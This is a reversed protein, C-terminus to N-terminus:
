FLEVSVYGLSYWGDSTKGKNAIPITHEISSHFVVAMEVTYKDQPLDAPIEYNFSSLIEGPLWGKISVDSIELNSIENNKNKLRFALRYDRYPPAIGLNEWNMKLSLKSGPNVLEPYTINRLTLRYGLKMVLREIQSIYEIPIDRSKNHAFTAHWAIADDVIQNIPATWGTMTGTPIGPELAVSGTQWAQPLLNNVPWYMFQHHPWSERLDADGWSDGRWGCEGKGVAYIVNTEDNVLATLPTNPFADFYLDTIAQRISRDPMLLTDCGIHWEGWLGVSGIDVLALDPHNDYRQGLARILRQHYELFIPDSMDPVYHAGVECQNYTRRIGKDILWQPLAEVEPAICMIRFALAQNNERCRQLLNDLMDFAYQGEQPEL